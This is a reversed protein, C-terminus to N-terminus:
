GSELKRKKSAAGVVAADTLEILLQPFAVMLTQLRENTQQPLQQRMRHYNAAAYGFAATRLGMEQNEEAFLLWELVNHVNLSSRVMRLCEAHLDPLLYFTAARMLAPLDGAELPTTTQTYIWSLVAKFTRASHAPDVHLTSGNEEAWGPQLLARFYDSGLRLIQSHLLVHLIGFL